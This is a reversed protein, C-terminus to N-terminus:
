KKRYLCLNDQIVIDSICYFLVHATKNMTKDTESVLIVRSQEMSMCLQGRLIHYGRGPLV